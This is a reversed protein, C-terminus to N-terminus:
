VGVMKKLLEVNRRDPGNKDFGPVELILPLKKVKAYNLFYKFDQPPIQGEGLNAHRDRGSGFEDRSDNVHVVKLSSWLGLLTIEEIALQDFDDAMKKPLPQSVKSGLGLGAAYAHCTDFCWGVRKSKLQDLLWRIETLDSGVKGKQGASNEILFTSDSPTNALVQKIQRVIQERVALWGKGLHSGLHVVVGGGKILSDFQLDYELIKASKKVLESNPSALNVLYIAHTIIPSVGLEKSKSTIKDADLASLKPRAWVRPSGSFVQMTNCGLDKARELAQDVGGVMSVHAGILRESM